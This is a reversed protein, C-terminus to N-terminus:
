IIKTRWFDLTFSHVSKEARTTFKPQCFFKYPYFNKSVSIDRIYGLVRALSLAQELVQSGKMSSISSRNKPIKLFNKSSNALFTSFCFFVFRLILSFIEKLKKKYPLSREVRRRRYRTCLLIGLFSKIKELIASM